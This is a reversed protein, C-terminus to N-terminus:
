ALNEIGFAVASREQDGEIAVSHRTAIERGRQAGFTYAARLSTEGTNWHTFPPQMPIEIIQTQHVPAAHAGVAPGPRVGCISEAFIVFIRSPNKRGAVVQGI